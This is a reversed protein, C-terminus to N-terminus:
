ISDKEKIQLVSFFKFPFLKESTVKPQTLIGSIMTKCFLGVGHAVGCM